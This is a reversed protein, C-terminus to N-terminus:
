KGGFRPSNGHLILFLGVASHRASAHAVDGAEAGASLSPQLALRKHGYGHLGEADSPPFTGLGPTGRAGRAPPLVYTRTRVELMPLIFVLIRTIASPRQSNRSTRCQM